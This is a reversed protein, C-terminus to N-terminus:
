LVRVAAQGCYRALEPAPLPPSAWYGQFYQCGRAGLFELQAATEVGEAVVSLGLGRALGIIAETIAADGADHELDAIFSLDIKLTDIPFHKLHTLSSYGTGFDDIAVAFGESRLEHLTKRIADLDHLLSTETVELELWQPVCGEERVIAGIRRALDERYFQRASLNISVTLPLGDRRWSACQRAAHRVVWEGLAHILGSEEAIPIFVRPAVDGLSTDHWRLLAEAGVVRRDSMRIVPQYYLTLAEHKVADRLATELTHQRLRRAALDADLFQFTNRGLEKSRYMAVDAHKLLEDPDDSDDPYVSIGISSTVFIAQEEIAFPQAIADQLKQAIRGLIQPDEVEEVIVMFEDGGLRALLDTERLSASLAGTVQKLLLDGVRHGLTDNVNKFRDLDIFLVGVRLGTRRAKAIAQALHEHLLLRNPLGTLADRTALYQLREEARVRSSVDQVFSLISVIRGRDDHLCSHYWECWITAGDKRHNRTIGTARPEDGSMLRGLTQAVADRESEHLLRNSDIAMGLVEDSCWGFIHEAQPSWRVLRSDRDWELVALPTNNIHSSLMWNARRLAEENRKQDHIDTHVAYIGVVKADADRNPAYHISEWRQSGDPQALLAETSVVHGALVQQLYPQLQRAREEGFVESAPRGALERRSAGLWEENHRNLFRLRYDRDIYAVRAPVNDMILRLEDESARLAEQAQKLGHIDHMLVFAGNIEGTAATDPVVRLTMWRRINGAGPVLRDFATAEGGLARSVMSAASAYVSQGIIDSLLRGAAEDQARGFFQLFARNVYRCREERDIYAVPAPVGDMIARLQSERAALAKEAEKLDTIDHAVVYIGGISGDSRRDPVMRGRLCRERGHTDRLTREYVVAEGGFAREVHPRLALEVNAGIVESPSHGIVQDREFGTLTLFAENAFAYRGGSDVYVVPDPINDTFLRLQEERRLVAQEAVKLDHIDHETCYLGRLKGAGDLDPVIRGQMWRVPAAGGGGGAVREYEVAEGNRARALIPALFAAVDVPLVEAPLRGYVAEQTRQVHAAFSQNVFTYRLDPDLYAIPGPINDAILRLQREQSKLADRIRVDDDIDSFVIFVGAVPGAAERDPLLHVRMWRPTGDLRQLHREYSQPEGALAREAHPALNAYAEPGVADRLAHGLLDEAPVGVFDGFPRNAFRLKLQPDCYVIPTGISDSVLRLRHERQAAEQELRKLTDVDTCAVLVGRVTGDGARDPYYDVRVWRPARGPADLRREFGTTEGALAADAYARYIPHVDDGDVEAVTRGIVDGAALGLWDLFAANAFRYRRDPGFSAIPQGICDLMAQAVAEPGAQPPDAARSPM